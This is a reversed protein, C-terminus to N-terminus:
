SEHSVQHIVGDPDFKVVLLEDSHQRGFSFDLVLQFAFHEHAHIAVSCLELAEVFAGNTGGARLAQPLAHPVEDVHFQFFDRMITADSEAASGIAARARRRLEPLSDLLLEAHKLETDSVASDIYISMPLTVGCINVEGSWFGSDAEIKVPPFVETSFVRM